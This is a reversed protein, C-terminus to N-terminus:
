KEWHDSIAGEVKLRIDGMATTLPFSTMYKDIIEAAKQEEIKNSNTVLEDHVLLIVRSSMMRKKFEQNIKLAAELGIDSGSGQILTNFGTMYINDRNVNVPRGLINKVLAGQELQADLTEKFKFVQRFEEIFNARIERCEKITRNFGHKMFTEQIRKAGSGYFLSLDCEKTAKRENPYLLKVDAVDCDLSFFIKAIYGHFDKGTMLIDCLIPDETYWAIIHPELASFDKTIISEGIFLDRISTDVQQLNPESSSLRGTRTGAPNFNTYLKGKFLMEKYSPFFSTGLKQQKRYELFLNIDDRNTEASLKKLVKKDTSEKGNYGKVNLGLYDRLIFMVQADSDLNMKFPIKSAAKTFLGNYRNRTNESKSKDKLRAIAAEAKEDYSIRLKGIELKRYADYAPAWLQDLRMKIETTKNNSEVTKKDLLFEDITVGHMEMEVLNKTWPLLKRHIFEVSEEKELEKLLVEYLEYTYKCDKIVYDDNDHNTPDEWFPDIGLFYPALTKLSHKGANRHKLGDRPLKKNLERRKAEYEELWIDPVKNSIVSAMLHTDGVWDELRIDVEKSKLTKFDFKFNHGIINLGFKQRQEILFESFKTLDRFVRGGFFSDYVGVCTIKNRNFDLAHKCSKNHCDQVNCATEIDVAIM